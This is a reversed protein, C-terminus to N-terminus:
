SVFKIFEPRVRLFIRGAAYDLDVTFFQLFDSGILGDNDQPYAVTSTVVDAVLDAIAFHGIRVEGLRYPRSAFAGGIGSSTALAPNPKM